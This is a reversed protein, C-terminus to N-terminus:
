LPCTGPVQRGYTAAAARLCARAHERSREIPYKDHQKIMCAIAGLRTVAQYGLSDQYLGETPSTWNGHYTDPLSLLRAELDDWQRRLAADALLEHRYRLLMHGPRRAWNNSHWEWFLWPRQEELYHWVAAMEPAAAPDGEAALRGEFYPFRGQADSVGHGLVAGDPNTVPIFCIRHRDRIAAAERDDSRLVDVMAKCALHGMESPQPTAAHVMCPADAPGIEVAYIPRGQYSHGIERVRVGDLSRICDVVESYPWWHFDSLFLVSDPDDARPLLLELELADEAGEVARIAQPDLQSWRGGRRLVAHRVGSGFCESGPANAELRVRVRRPAVAKNQIGFCYYYSSGSFRHAGPEPELAIRYLDQGLQRIGAGNGGEFDTALLVDPGDYVRSADGRTRVREWRPDYGALRSM